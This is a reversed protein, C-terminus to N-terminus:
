ALNARAGKNALLRKIEAKGEAGYRDEFAHRFHESGLMFPADALHMYRIALSIVPADLPRFQPNHIGGGPCGPYFQGLMLGDQVFLPKLMEQIREIMAAGHAGELRSFTLVLARGVLPPEGPCDAAWDRFMRHMHTVQEVIIPEDQLTAISDALLIGGSRAGLSAFPCVPGGRGQAPDSGTLRVAVFHAMRALTRSRVPDVQPSNQRDLASPVNIFGTVFETAKTPPWTLTSM